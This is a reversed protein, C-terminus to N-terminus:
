AAGGWSAFMVVCALVSLGAIALSVRRQLSAVQLRDQLWEMHRQQAQIKAKLHMVYGTDKDFDLVNEDNIYAM